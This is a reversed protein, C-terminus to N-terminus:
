AGYSASRCCCRSAPAAASCPPSRRQHSRGSPSSPTSPQDQQQHGQPAGSPGPEGSSREGTALQGSTVEHVVEVLHRSGWPHTLAETGGPLVTSARPAALARPSLWSPAQGGGQGRHGKAMHRHCSVQQRQILPLAPRDWVQGGM